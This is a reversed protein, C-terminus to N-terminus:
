ARLPTRRTTCQVLWRVAVAASTSGIAARTTAATGAAATRDAPSTIIAISSIREHLLYVWFIPM